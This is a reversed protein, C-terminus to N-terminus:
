TPFSVTRVPALACFLVKKDLLNGVRVSVLSFWISPSSWVSAGDSGDASTSSHSRWVTKSLSPLAFGKAVAASVNVKLTGTCASCPRFKVESSCGPQFPSAFAARSLSDRGCSRARGWVQAMLRPGSLGEQLVGEGNM